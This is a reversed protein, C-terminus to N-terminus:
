GLMGQARLVSAVRDRTAATVRVLPLRLEDDMKGLLQLAAKVPAPSTEVFLVEHLPLLAFHTKKAGAADGKAWARCVDAVRGPALNSTVSVVGVGGVSLIPLTMADDGSLVALREGVLEAIKQSRLVNGSAEKVGVVDPLERAMRAITEPLLDTVTRTPVNYVVTPLPADKLIAAMHAVLGDQTPKNYYPMVHLAAQAGCRKALRTLEIAKHTDNSGCGAMVPVRGRAAAVTTKVVLEHEDLSLTPAEGTTGCPVLGDIGGRVQEEVLAELAAVDVKGGRFPTVLATWAGQIKM